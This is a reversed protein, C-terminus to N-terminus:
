NLLMNCRKPAGEIFGLMGVLILSDLTSRSAALVTFGPYFHGDVWTGLLPALQPFIEPSLTASHNYLAEAPNKRAPPLPIKAAGNEVQAVRVPIRVLRSSGRLRQHTGMTKKPTSSALALSAFLFAIQLMGFFISELFHEFYTTKCTSRLFLLISFDISFVAIIQCHNYNFIEPQHNLWGEPFIHFDSPTIVNGISPFIFCTGFWWGTIIQHKTRCHKELSTRGKGPPLSCHVWLPWIV